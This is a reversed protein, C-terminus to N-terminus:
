AAAIASAFKHCDGTEDTPCYIGGAIKDKAAALSPELEVVQGRDLVRIEQGDDALIQMHEVARELSEPTRHFYLIGRSLRDYRMANDAITEHLVKQSYVCLRHKRLTNIRAREERACERCDLM